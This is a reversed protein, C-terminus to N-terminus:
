RRANLLRDFYLVISASFRNPYSLLYYPLWHPMSQFPKPVSGNKQSQELLWKWSSPREVMFLDMKGGEFRYLLNHFKAKPIPEHFQINTIHYWLRELDQKLGRRCAILILPWSTYSIRQWPVEDKVIKFNLMASIADNPKIYPDYFRCKNQPQKRIISQETLNLFLRDGQKISGTHRLFQSMLFVHPVFYESPILEIDSCDIIMKKIQPDVSKEGKLYRSLCYSALVGGLLIKRYKGLVINIAPDDDMFENSARYEECLKLIRSQIANEILNLTKFFDKHSINFRLVTAFIYCALLIYSEIKAFHNKERDYSSTLYEVIILSSTIRRTVETKKLRKSNNKLPLISLLSFHIEEKDILKRGDSIMVGLFRHFDLIPQPLYHGTYKIFLNLLQSGAWVELGSFGRDNWNDIDDNIRSTAHEDIHGTTVLFSKHKKVKPLCPHKIKNEVLEVLEPRIKRYITTTIKGRKLQFAYARKRKDLAIIDKGEELPGHTTSHIVTYGM